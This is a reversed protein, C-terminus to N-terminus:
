VAEGPPGGGTEERALRGFAEPTMRFVTWEDMAVAGLKGYFDRAPTNWDLVSWEMRGCEREVALRALHALLRRGIGRGREEPRVFLDELYLTPRGKFTSFTFFYLAFGVARGRREALTAEFVPRRGFGHTRLLEVTAEVEHSLREYEAIGRVLELLTPVDEVTAPRLVLDDSM